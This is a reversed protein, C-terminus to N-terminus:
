EGRAPPLTLPMGGLDGGLDIDYDGEDVEEEGEEEEAGEGGESSRPPTRTWM